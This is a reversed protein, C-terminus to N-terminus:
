SGWLRWTSPGQRPTWMRGCGRFGYRGKRPRPPPTPHPPPSGAVTHPDQGRFEITVQLFVSAGSIHFLENPSPFRCNFAFSQPELARATRLLGSEGVWANEKVSEFKRASLHSGLASAPRLWDGPVAFCTPSWRPRRKGRGAGWPLELRRIGWRPVAERAETVGLTPYGRAIGPVTLGASEFSSPTPARLPQHVAPPGARRFRSEM